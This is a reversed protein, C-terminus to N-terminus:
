TLMFLLIFAIILLFLGLVVAILTWDFGLDSKIISNMEEKPNINLPGAKNGARMLDPPVDKIEKHKIKDLIETHIKPNTRKYYNLRKLFSIPDKLRLEKLETLLKENM